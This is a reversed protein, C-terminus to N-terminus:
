KNITGPDNNNVYCGPPLVTQYTIGKPCFMTEVPKGTTPDKVSCKWCNYDAPYLVGFGFPMTMKGIVEYQKTVPNYKRIDCVIVATSPTIKSPDVGIPYCMKSKLEEQQKKLLEQRQKELEAIQKAIDDLSTAAPPEDTSLAAASNLALADLSSQIEEASLAAPTPQPSETPMLQPAAITPLPAPALPAPALSPSPMSYQAPYQANAVGVVAFLSCCVAGTLCRLKM